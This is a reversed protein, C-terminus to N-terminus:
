ARARACVCVCGCACLCGIEGDRFLISRNHFPLLEKHYAWKERVVYEQLTSSFGSEQSSTKRWLISRCLKKRLLPPESEPSFCWSFFLRLAITCGWDDNRCSVRLVCVLFVCLCVRLRGRGSVSVCVGVCARVCV